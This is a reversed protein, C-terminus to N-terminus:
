VSAKKTPSIQETPKQQGVVQDTAKVDSARKWQMRTYTGHRGNVTTQVQVLGEKKLAKALEENDQYREDTALSKLLAEDAGGNVFNNLGINM